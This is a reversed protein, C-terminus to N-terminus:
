GVIIRKPQFRGNVKKGICLLTCKAGYKRCLEAKEVTTKTTALLEGRYIAYYKITEVGKSNVTPHQIFKVAQPQDVFVTDNDTKAHMASCVFLMLTILLKGM